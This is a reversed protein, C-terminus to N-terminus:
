NMDKFATQPKHEHEMLEEAPADGSHDLSDAFPWTPGVGGRAMMTWFSMSNAMMAGAILWPWMSFAMFPPLGAMDKANVFPLEFNNNM